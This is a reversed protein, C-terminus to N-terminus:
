SVGLQSTCFINPVLTPSSTTGLVQSPEACGTRGIVPPTKRDVHDVAALMAPLVWPLNRAEDKVRFVCTLGPTLPGDEWAWRVDYEERGELNRIM